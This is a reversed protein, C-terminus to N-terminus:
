KMDWDKNVVNSNCVVAVSNINKESATLGLTAGYSFSYLVPFWPM